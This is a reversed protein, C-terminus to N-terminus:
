AGIGWEQMLTSGFRLAECMRQREADIIWWANEHADMIPQTMVVRNNGHKKAEMAGPTFCMGNKLHGDRYFVPHDAYFTHFTHQKPAYECILVVVTARFGYRQQKPTTDFRFQNVGRRNELRAFKVEVRVLNHALVDVDAAGFAKGPLAPIGERRLREILLAESFVTTETIGIKIQKAGRLKLCAKCETSYHGPEIAPREDTGYGSRVYYATYPKEEHCKGCPKSDTLTIMTLAGKLTPELRQTNM